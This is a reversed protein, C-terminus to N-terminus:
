TAEVATGDDVGGDAPRRRAGGSSRGSGDTGSQRGQAVADMTAGDGVTADDYPRATDSERTRTGTPTIGPMAERQSAGSTPPGTRDADSDAVGRGRVTGAQYSSMMARVQDPSRAGDPQTASGSGSDAEDPPADRQRVRQPLGEPDDVPEIVEMRAHRGGIPKGTTAVIVETEADEVRGEGVAEGVGRDTARRSPLPDGQATVPTFGATSSPASRPATPSASSLPVLDATTSPGATLAAPEGPPALLADPLLAVAATGGYASRRLQVDIGHRAALRAVVFLGLQAGAAPDFEPPDTLQANLEALIPPLIGIGRDEIEIALGNTVPEAGVVVKSTPPSFTTANEILEALLHILDGVARGAIAVDPVQRVTVRAYDEIESVAGRLVDVLPVPLRWGRGPAAGALIVLYEANRRMRTALHDLRFLDELEAPDEVQREMSDLISLQRHLLTQSRRAINLFVDNVGRRLDAEAVASAVATRQLANFAHGVQGIEDGGYPLPPAERAVDVQEGRRLREVVRPLRDISIEMAAQRLGALRRLVSRAVRVSALATVVLALLGLLGTAAIRGLIFLAQPRSREVLREAGALELARLEDDLGDHASRWAALEVPPVEGVRGSVILRDELAGLTGASAGSAIQQYALRDTVHLDAEALGFQHRQAGVLQVAQGLDTTTFEGAAIAGSVVADERSLLERAESL